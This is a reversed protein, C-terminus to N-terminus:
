PPGPRRRRGLPPRALRGCALVAPSRSARCAVACVARGRSAPPAASTTRASRRTLLVAFLVVMSIAGVYVLVQAFAVFEAGAWLYFAAVGAWSCRWSCSATCLNRRAMAAAAAGLTVLAILVLVANMPTATPAPASARREPRRGLLLFPGVVLALALPGACRAPAPRGLRRQAVLLRGHRPQDARAARPIELRAPHAPRDAPAAAHRPDLHLGLLLALLKLAFWAYSPIFELLPLPAQWGGLFLTVAMGSLACM